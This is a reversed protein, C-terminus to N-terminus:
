YARAEAIGQAQLAVALAHTLKGSGLPRGAFSAVPRLGILANTLFMEEMHLLADVDIRTERTTIGLAAACDLVLGRMIGAVGGQSLEPTLLVDGRIGFVNAATAGIVQGAPTCMIGEDLRRRSIETRALVNDLRNLTKLGALVPNISAPVQCLGVALAASAPCPSDPFFGIVRTVVPVAPATYGRQGPGRSLTLRVTGQAQGNALATIEDVLGTIEPEPLGLRRCGLHLRQLHRDFLRLAGERWAMTEFLGDGYAFGRDDPGITGDPRGNVLWRADGANL